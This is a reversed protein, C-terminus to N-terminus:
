MRDPVRLTLLEAGCRLVDATLATLGLRLKRAAEGAQLIPLVNYFANFRQCLEYLYQALKHPLHEARAEDLVSPFDQLHLLLRREDPELVDTVKPLAADSGAKRLVSRARAHTYQVYPASNGEFSLMKDWDFVIDMKRNQSLIGYVLAGTGMMEALAAPDDTQITDGREDIIAQARAVAEDVVHELKMVTGKRTSMAKDVFRMRGFLVNEFTTLEWGLQECTAVLQQFHLKQAIDTFILIAQPHYADIRYRMQALDRTSYLTGGDSKRIMFPPLASEESFEAILAGGDGEHFVGKALGADIVPQMKDEYFSEGLDLDFSVHLREYLSALSAKTVAVVDAWFARLAPDGRELDRFAERGEDELEPHEDVEKHFRVYLALLEDLSCDRVPKETGWRRHAVALKGFQTGWDGLYNWRIVNYGAHEYLNSVSQGLVTGIVHHIALPKAINPQSYEVIVPPETRRVAPVCAQRSAALSRLLEQPTFWVNVYGAGAVEVREVITPQTRLEQAIIEAIDQPKRGLTKAIRLAVATCRDGHDQQAPREWKVDADDVGCERQLVGRVAATIDEFM